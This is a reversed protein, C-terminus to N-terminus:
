NIRISKMIMSSSYHPNRVAGDNLSKNSLLPLELKSMNASGFERPPIMARDNLIISHGFIMGRDFETGDETERAQNLQYIIGSSQETSITKKKPKQDMTEQGLQLFLNCNWDLVSLYLNLMAHDTM